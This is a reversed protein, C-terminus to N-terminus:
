QQQLRILKEAFWLLPAQGHLDGAVSPRQLYYNLDQSQGTGVCIDSLVGDDGVRKALAQWAKRYAPEYQEKPLLQKEVGTAFAFGFMATSSSEEWAEPHDILQRWMGSPAQYQLLAAMMKRYHELLPQYLAHSKPLESLLEALGAAVWGNGRGWYFQADLGHFFLGNTQQLKQMYVITEQAARDLYIPNHTARYAQVQLSDIMWIDDIWFRTQSTLGNPLPDRWQADAYTLGETLFKKKGFLLYEELPLTGWVSADVHHDALLTDRGPVNAYRRRLKALRHKDGIAKAFKFAGYGAAAEAYHVGVAHESTNQM